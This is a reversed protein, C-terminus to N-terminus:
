FLTFFLPCTEGIKESFFKFHEALTFLFNRNLLGGIKLATQLDLWSSDFKPILENPFGVCAAVNQQQV